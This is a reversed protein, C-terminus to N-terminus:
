PSVEGAMVAKPRATNFRYRLVALEDMERTEDHLQEQLHVERRREKLRVLM